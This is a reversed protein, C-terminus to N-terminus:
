TKESKANIQLKTKTPKTNGPIQRKIELHDLKIETTDTTIDVKM